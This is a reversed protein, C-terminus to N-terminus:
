RRRHLAPPGAGRGCQGGVVLGDLAPPVWAPCAGHDTQDVVLLTTAAALVGAIAVPMVLRRLTQQRDADDRSRRMRLIQDRGTM